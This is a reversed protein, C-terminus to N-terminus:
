EFMEPAVLALVLYVFLGCAVILSVIGMSKNGKKIELFLHDL